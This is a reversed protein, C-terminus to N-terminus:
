LGLRIKLYRAHEETHEGDLAEKECKPSCFICTDIYDSYETCIKCVKFEEEAEVLGCWRCHRIPFFTIEGPFDMKVKGDKIEAFVPSFCYPAYDTAFKMSIEPHKNDDDESKIQAMWTSFIQKVKWADGELYVWFAKEVEDLSMDQETKRNEKNKKLNKFYPTKFCLYFILQLLQKETMAKAEILLKKTKTKQLWSDLNVAIHKEFVVKLLSPLDKFNVDEEYGQRSFAATAMMRCLLTVKKVPSVAPESFFEPSLCKKLVGELRYLFFCLSERTSPGDKNSCFETLPLLFKAFFDRTIINEEKKTGFIARSLFSKIQEAKHVMFILGEQKVLHPIYKDSPYRPNKQYSCLLRHIFHLFWKKKEVDVTKDEELELFSAGFCPLVYQVFPWEPYLNIPYNEGKKEYLHCKAMKLVL